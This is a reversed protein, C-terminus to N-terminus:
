PVYATANISRPIQVYARRLQQRAGRGAESPLGRGNGSLRRRAREGTAGPAKEVL